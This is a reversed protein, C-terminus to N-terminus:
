TRLKRILSYLSAIILYAPLVFIVLIFFLAEEVGFVASVANHLLIGTFGGVVVIWLKKWSLIFLERYKM